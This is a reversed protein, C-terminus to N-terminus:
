RNVGKEFTKDKFKPDRPHKKPTVKEVPKQDEPISLPPVIKILSGEKSFTLDLKHTTMKGNAPEVTEIYVLRNPNTTDQLVPQGLLAIVESAPMGFKLQNIQEQKLINGQQLTPRYISCASLVLVAILLVIKKM